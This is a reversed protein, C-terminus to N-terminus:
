NGAQDDGEKYPEGGSDKGQGDPLFHLQNGIIVIKSRKDGSDTEWREQQLKGEIAVPKGKTLYQGAVEATKGFMKVDFFSTIQVKEGDKTRKENVAIGFEALATGSPLYKLAVDRTLNGAVMVTAFGNM